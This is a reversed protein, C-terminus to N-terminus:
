RLMNGLGALESPDDRSQLIGKSYDQTQNLLHFMKQAQNQQTICLESTENIKKPVLAM